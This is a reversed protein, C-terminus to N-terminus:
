WPSPTPDWPRSFTCAAESVFAGPLPGEPLQPDWSGGQRGRPGSFHSDAQVRDRCRESETLSLEGTTGMTEQWSIFSSLGIKCAGPPSHHWRETGQNPIIRPAKQPLPQARRVAPYLFPPGSCLPGRCPFSASGPSPQKLRLSTAPPHPLHCPSSPPRQPIVQEPAASLPGPKSPKWSFLM